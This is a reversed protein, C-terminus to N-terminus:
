SAEEWLTSSHPVESQQQTGRASRLGREPGWGARGRQAALHPGAVQWGGLPRWGSCLHPTPPRLPCPSLTWADWSGESRGRRGWFRSLRRSNGVLLWCTPCPTSIRPPGRSGGARLAWPRSGGVSEPNHFRSLTGRGGSLLLGGARWSLGPQVTLRLTVMIIRSHWSAQSQPPPTALSTARVTGAAGAVAEEGDHRRLDLQGQWGPFAPGLGETGQWLFSVGRRLLISAAGVLHGMEAQGWSVGHRGM